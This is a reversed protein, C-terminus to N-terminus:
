RYRSRPPQPFEGWADELLVPMAQRDQLRRQEDGIQIASYNAWWGIAVLAILALIGLAIM